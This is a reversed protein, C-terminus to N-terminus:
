FPENFKILVMTELSREQPYMFYDVPGLKPGQEGSNKWKPSRCFSYVTATMSDICAAPLMAKYTRYVLLLGTALLTDFCRESNLRIM